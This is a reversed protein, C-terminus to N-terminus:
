AQEVGSVALAMGVDVVGTHVKALQVGVFNGAVYLTLLRQVAGAAKFANIPKGSIASARSNRFIPTAKGQLCGPSHGAGTGSRGVSM